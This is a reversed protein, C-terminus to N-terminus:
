ADPNLYLSPIAMNVPSPRRPTGVNWVADDTNLSSSAPLTGTGIRRGRQWGSFDGKCIYVFSGRPSSFHDYARCMLSGSQYLGLVCVRKFPENGSHGVPSPFEEWTMDEDATRYYRPDPPSGPGSLPTRLALVAVGPAACILQRFVMGAPTDPIDETVTPFSVGDNVSLLGAKEDITRQYPAVFVRGDGLAIIRAENSKFGSSDLPSPSPDWTLGGDESIALRTHEVPGTTTVGCVMVLRNNGVFVMQGYTVSVVGPFPEIEVLSWTEGTDDSVYLKLDLGTLVGTKLILRKGTVEGGERVLGAYVFEFGATRVSPFSLPFLATFTHKLEATIGYDLRSLYFRGTYEQTSGIQDFTIFIVDHGGLFYPGTVFDFAPSFGPQLYFFTQLLVGPHFPTDQFDGGGGLTSYVLLRGGEAIIRIHEQDGDWRVHISAGEARVTNSYAHISMHKRLDRLHNRAFPLYHGAGDGILLKHQPM